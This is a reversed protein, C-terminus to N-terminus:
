LAPDNAARVLGTLDALREIQKRDADFNSPALWAEFAEKLAPWEKDIVAFWATDRNRGKVVTAQRFVGEYSFGLRQAARRSQINLANCKWEYRRYGAEFAWRMMLYMAETAARTRQLAPSFNIYGVEISGAEPAIRLFSAQGAFRGTELDKIAYFYPDSSAAAEVAWRHFSASSHFPGDPMYDWLSDDVAYATHLDAAHQGATLKELRAYQGELVVENPRPPPVWDTVPAGLSRDQSM